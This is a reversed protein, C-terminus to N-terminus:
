ATWRYTISIKLMIGQSYGASNYQRSEHGHGGAGEWDSGIIDRMSSGLEQPFGAAPKESSWEVVAEIVLFTLLGSTMFLPGDVSVISASELRKDLM